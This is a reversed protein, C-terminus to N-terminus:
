HPPAFSTEDYPRPRHTPFPKARPPAGYQGRVLEPGLVVVADLEGSAVWVPLDWSTASEAVFRAGADNRAALIVEGSAPATESVEPFTLPGDLGLVLLSG